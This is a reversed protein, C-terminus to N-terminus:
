RELGDGMSMLLFSFFFLCLHALNWIGRQADLHRGFGTQGETQHVSSDQLGALHALIEWKADGCRVHVVGVEDPTDPGSPLSAGHCQRVPAPRQRDAQWGGTM